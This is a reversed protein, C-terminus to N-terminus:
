ALSAMPNDFGFTKLIPTSFGDPIEIENSKKELQRQRRSLKNRQKAARRKTKSKRAMEITPDTCITQDRM